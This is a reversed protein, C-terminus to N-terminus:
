APDMPQWLQIVNGEPDRVAAFRGM